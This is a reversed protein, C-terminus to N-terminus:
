FSPAWFSYNIKKNKNRKKRRVKEPEADAEDWATGAKPFRQQPPPRLPLRSPATGPAGALIDALPPTPPPPLGTRAWPRPPRVSPKIISFGILISSKSNHYCDQSAMNMGHGGFGYDAEHDRPTVYGVTAQVDQVFWSCCRWTELKQDADALDRFAGKMKVQERPSEHHKKMRRTSSLVTSTSTKNCVKVKWPHESGGLHRGQAWSGQFSCSSTRARVQGEPLRQSHSLSCSVLFSELSFSLSLAVSMWILRQRPKSTKARTVVDCGTKSPAGHSWLGYSWSWGDQPWFTVIGFRAQSNEDVDELEMKQNGLAANTFMHARM